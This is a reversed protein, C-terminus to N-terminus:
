FGRDRAVACMEELQIEEQSLFVKKPILEAKWKDVLAQEKNWDESFRCGQIRIWGEITRPHPHIDFKEIVLTSVDKCLTKVKVLERIYAFIIDKQEESQFKFYKKTDKTM